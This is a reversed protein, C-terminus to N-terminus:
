YPLGKHDAEWLKTVKNFVQGNTVDAGSTRKGAKRINLQTLIIKFTLPMVIFIFLLLLLVKM